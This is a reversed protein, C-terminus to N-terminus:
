MDDLRIRCLLAPQSGFSEEGTDVVVHNRVGGHARAGRDCSDKNKDEQECNNKKGPREIHFRTENTVHPFSHSFCEEGRWPMCMTEKIVFRM